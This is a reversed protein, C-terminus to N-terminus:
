RATRACVWSEDDTLYADVVLGGDAPVASQILDPERGAPLRLYLDVPCGDPTIAGPGTCAHGDRFNTSGTM